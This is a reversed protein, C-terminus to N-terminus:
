KEEDSCWSTVWPKPTNTEMIQHGRPKMEVLTPTILIGELVLGSGPTVLVATRNRILLSVLAHERIAEISSPM